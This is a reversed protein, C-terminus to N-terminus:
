TGALRLHLRVTTGAPTTHVLVPEGRTLGDRVFPVTLALLEAADRYFAGEHVLGGPIPGTAAAATM